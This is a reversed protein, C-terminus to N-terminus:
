GLFEQLRTLWGCCERRSPKATRDEFAFTFVVVVLLGFLLMSTFAEKNKYEIAIDKAVIAAVPRM